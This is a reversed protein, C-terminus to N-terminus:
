VLVLAVCLLFVDCINLLDHQSGSNAKSGGSVDESPVLSRSVYHIRCATDTFEAHQSSCLQRVLWQPRLRRKLWGLVEPKLKEVLRAWEEAVM